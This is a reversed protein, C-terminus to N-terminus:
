RNQKRLSRLFRGVQQFTLYDHAEGWAQQGDFEWRCLSWWEFWESYFNGKFWTHCHGEAHLTRGLHDTADVIEVLPRGVDDREVVRREGSVLDGLVGDKTYWGGVVRETTGVIPNQDSPLTSVATLQFSSTESAIAWPWAGRLAGALTRPGWTHDRLSWSDVEFTEGDLDLTGRMRGGQEYRRPGFGEIGPNVKGPQLPKLEHPEMISEWTLDLQYGKNGKFVIHYSKLLEIPEFTLGSRLTFDFMDAGEPLEQHEDFEYYLCDYLEEGSPDWLATGGASLKMNPRHYVYVFGGMKREPIMLTYISSENWYPDDNREHFSDDEPRIM